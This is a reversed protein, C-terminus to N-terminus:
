SQDSSTLFISHFYDFATRSTQAIPLLLYRQLFSSQNNRHALQSTKAGIKSLELNSSIRSRLRKEVSYNAPPPVDSAMQFNKMAESWNENQMHIEGMDNLAQAREYDSLPMTELLQQVTEVADNWLRAEKFVENKLKLIDILSKQNDPTCCSWAMDLTEVAAAYEGKCKCVRAISMYTQHVFKDNMLVHEDELYLRYYYEAETYQQTDELYQGFLLLIPTDKPSQHLLSCHQEMSTGDELLVLEVYWINMSEIYEVSQLRFLTGMSLLVENEDHHYSDKSIDAFPKPKKSEDLEYQFIVSNLDPNTGLGSFECAIEYSLSTSLFTNTYFVKGINQQLETLENQSMLQGRFVHIINTPRPLNALQTYLDHIFSRFVYILDVSELRGAENLLRYIFSDRSYWRIANNEDFNTKVFEDIKAQEIRNDKYRHRCYNILEERSQTTPIMAAIYQVLLQFPKRRYNCLSIQRENNYIRHRHSLKSANKSHEEAVDIDDRCLQIQRTM